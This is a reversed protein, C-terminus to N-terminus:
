RPDDARRNTELAHDLWRVEDGLAFLEPEGRRSVRVFQIELMVGQGYPVTRSSCFDGDATAAATLERLTADLDAPAVIQRAFAGRQLAADVAAIQEDHWRDALEERAAELEAASHGLYKRAFAADDAGAPVEEGGAGAAPREPPPTALPSVLPSRENPEARRESGRTPDTHAANTRPEAAAPPGPEPALKWVAWAGVLLLGGAFLLLRARMRVM